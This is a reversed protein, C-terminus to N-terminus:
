VTLNEDFVLHQPPKGIHAAYEGRLPEPLLAAMQIMIEDLMENRLTRMITGPGPKLRFTEGVEVRFPTRKLGRLNEQWNADGHHVVPLIPAGTELALLVVGARGKGLVGNASRTGEPALAFIYGARIRQVAQELAQIDPIGRRIPIGGYTSLLCKMWSSELRYAAFFGSIPRPSLRSVLVPLELVNVHNCVLILPGRTPVRALSRADVDCIMETLYYFFQDLVRRAITSTRSRDEGM